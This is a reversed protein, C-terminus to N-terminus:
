IVDSIPRSRVTSSCRGPSSNSFRVGSVNCSKNNSSIGCRFTACSSCSRNAFTNRSRPMSTSYRSSSAASDNASSATRRRNTSSISAALLCPSRRTVRANASYKSPISGRWITRLIIAPTRLSSILKGASCLSCSCSM